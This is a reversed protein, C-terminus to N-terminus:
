RKVRGVKGSKGGNGGVGMKGLNRDGVEGMEVDELGVGEVEIEESERIVGMKMLVREVDNDFVENFEDM